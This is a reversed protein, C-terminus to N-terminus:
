GAPRAVGGRRRAEAIRLNSVLKALREAAHAMSAAAAAIQETSASQEQSAAAVQQMAAAFAETGRSIADLRETMGTVLENTSTAAAEISATWTDLEAVNGELQGFSASALETARRVDRATVSMREMNVSTKEVGSLVDAVVQQTREAAETSMTSLRRVEAAVVSFGEGEDGARAAEMAANLALLKSHRALSHVLAVFTRIEQSAEVLARIAGTTAEVDGTLSALAASGADMRDRNERALERLRTNRAVGEHAGASMRAAVPGLTEASSALTQISEAMQTSQRSLDSATQAIQAASGSMQESSATIEGSMTATDGAATNLARALRALEGVMSALARGMREIEDTSRVVPVKVTLDGGAVAEAVAALEMAPRRIRDNVLRDVGFGVGVMVLFLIGEIGFLGTRVERYTADADAVTEHALVDWRGLNATAVAGREAGESSVFEVVSDGAAGAAAAFAQVDGSSAGRSTVLAHGASDALEVSVDGVTETSFIGRLLTRLTSDAALDPTEEPRSALVVQTLAAYRKATSVLRADAQARLSAAVRRNALYGLPILILAAALASLPVLRM